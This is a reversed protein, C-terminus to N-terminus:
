REVRRTSDGVSAAYTKWSENVKRQEFVRDIYASFVRKSREGVEYRLCLLSTVIVVFDREGM